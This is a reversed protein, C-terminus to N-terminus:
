DQRGFLGLRKVVKTEVPFHANLHEIRYRALPYYLKALGKVIRNTKKYSFNTGMFMLPFDLGSILKKTGPVIWPSDKPVYRYNLPSWDKLTRPERLGLKVAFGYLETGPYPMYINFSKAARPNERLLQELNKTYEELQFKNPISKLKNEILIAPLKLEDDRINLYKEDNINDKDFDSIKIIKDIWIDTHKKERSILYESRKLEENNFPEVEQEEMYLSLFDSYRIEKDFLLGSWLPSKNLIDVRSDRNKTM